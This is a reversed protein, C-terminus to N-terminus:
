HRVYHSVYHRVNTVKIDSIDWTANAVKSKLTSMKHSSLETFSLDGAM